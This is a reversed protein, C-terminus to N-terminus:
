SRDGERRLADNLEVDQFSALIKRALGASGPNTLPRDLVESLRRALYAVRREIRSYKVPETFPKRGARARERIRGSGIEVIM